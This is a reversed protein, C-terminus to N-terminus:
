EENNNNKKDDELTKNLLSYIDIEYKKALENLQGDLAEMMNESSYLFNAVRNLESRFINIEMKKLESSEELMLDNSPIVIMDYINAHTKGKHLRLIRGRRQIFQRPNGTSACFIANKTIPIDVGEDLTKMATLIEIQGNKFQQLIKDRDKTEGLFQYTKYGFENIIQSYENIIREDEEQILHNDEESTKSEYGEPVYVFTYKLSENKLEVDRFIKKLIAKKNQAKHIIRKRKILLPTAAEKFKGTKFDFYKILQRSIILYKELEEYELTLFYPYYYYPTLFNLDIAEKM